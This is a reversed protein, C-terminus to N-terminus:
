ASLAANFGELEEAAERDLFITADPHTRLITAPCATSIADELTRRVIKAKRTGPVSLILKPVRFLTPITLTMARTPVEEPSRFWGEAAQQRRCAEDLEVVKMDVPDHFDAVGPDNFALHGNEGIGLLCLKPDASRLKDAYERCYRDPDAITGDIEFFERLPVLRTLKERMYRRFSAPHDPKMGLYEDMHFGIVRDWPLEPTQVLAKLTDIQSAGTAFIVGVAEQKRALEKLAAAASQAAADGAAGSTPYIKLKLNGVQLQRAENEKRTM